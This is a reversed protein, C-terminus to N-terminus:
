RLEEDSKMGFRTDYDIASKAEEFKELPVHCYGTPNKVLYNQHYEEASYYQELPLVEIMVKERMREQLTNLSSLIEAEDERDVYYIGTRYQTGIDNGQRNLLTPDIVKFFQKLLFALSIQTQDYSVHVTEAHGTNNQCVQEYSPNETHGNAYGVDTRTVGPILSLYKQTGWFCGGALYIEKM